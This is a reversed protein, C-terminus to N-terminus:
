LRHGLPLSHLGSHGVRDHQSPVHQCRVAQLRVQGRRRELSQQVVRLHRDRAPRAAPSALALELCRPCPKCNAQGEKEQYTGAPCKFCESLGTTNGFKGATCDVCLVNGDLASAKGEQAALPAHAPAGHSPRAPACRANTASPQTPAIWAVCACEHASDVQSGRRCSPTCRKRSARSARRACPPGSARCTAAQGARDAPTARTPTATSVRNAICAPQCAAVRDTDDLLQATCLAHPYVDPQHPAWEGCDQCVTAGSFEM